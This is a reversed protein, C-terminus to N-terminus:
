AAAQLARGDNWSPGAFGESVRASAPMIRSPLDPSRVLGSRRFQRPNFKPDSGQRFSNDIATAGFRYRRGRHDATQELTVGQSPRLRHGALARDLYLNRNAALPAPRDVDAHRRYGTEVIALHPERAGVKLRVVDKEAEGVVQHRVIILANGTPRQVAVALAHIKRCAAEPDPKCNVAM